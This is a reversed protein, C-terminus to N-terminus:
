ELKFVKSNNKIENVISILENVDNYFDLFYDGNLEKVNKTTFLNNGLELYMKNDVLVISFHNKAHLLQLKKMMSPTLICYAELEDSARVAFEKDFKVDETKIKKYKSGHNITLNTKFSKPFEVIGFVGYFITVTYTETVREGKSNRTTRTRTDTVNLDSVCLEVQSPSGDKNPIKISLYDAGRYHDYPEYFPSAKFIDKSIYDKRAYKYTYGQLLYGVIKEKDVYFKYRSKALYFTAIIFLAISTAISVVFLVSLFVFNDGSNVGICSLLLFLVFLLFAVGSFLYFRIAIKQKKHAYAYKEKDDKTVIENEIFEYFDEKSVM